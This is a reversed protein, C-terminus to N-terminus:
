GEEREDREERRSKADPDEEGNLFRTVPVSGYRGSGHPHDFVVVGFKMRKSLFCAIERATELNACGAHIMSNAFVRYRFTATAM